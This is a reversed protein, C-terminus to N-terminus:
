WHTYQYNNQMTIQHLPPRTNSIRDRLLWFSKAKLFMQLKAASMLLKKHLKIPIENGVGLNEDRSSGLFIVGTVFHIFNGSKTGQYNYKM